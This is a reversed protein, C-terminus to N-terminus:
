TTELQSYGGTLGAGGIFGTADIFQYRFRLRFGTSSPNSTTVGTLLIYQPNPVSKIFPLDVISFRMVANRNEIAYATAGIDVEKKGYIIKAKNGGLSEILGIKQNGMFVRLHTGKKFSQDLIVIIRNEDKGVIKAAFVTNFILFFFFMSIITYLNTTRM